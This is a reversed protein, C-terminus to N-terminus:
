DKSEIVGDRLWFSFQFLISPYSIHLLEFSYHEFFVTVLVAIDLLIKASAVNKHFPLIADIIDLTSLNKQCIKYGPGDRKL